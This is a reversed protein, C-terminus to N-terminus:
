WAIVEVEGLKTRTNVLLNFPAHNFSTALILLPCTLVWLHLSTLATVLDLCFPAGHLVKWSREIALTHPLHGSTVQAVLWSTARSQDSQDSALSTIL